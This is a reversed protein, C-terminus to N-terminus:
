WRGNTYGMSFYYKKRTIRRRKKLTQKCSKRGGSAGAGPPMQTEDLKIYIKDGMSLIVQTATDRRNNHKHTFLYSLTNDPDTM